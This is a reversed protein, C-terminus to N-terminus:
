PLQSAYSFHHIHVLIVSEEDGEDGGEFRKEIKCCVYCAFAHTDVAGVCLGNHRLTYVHMTAVELISIYLM